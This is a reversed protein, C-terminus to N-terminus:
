LWNQVALGQLGQVRSFERVNATVVTLKEALSHAAILLDNAGIRTGQRAPHHRLEAYRHDAPAQLPLIELASLLLQVRYEIRKSGSKVAGYRLESHLIAEEGELEFDRPIRM